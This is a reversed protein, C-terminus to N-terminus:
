QPQPNNESAWKRIPEFIQHFEPHDIDHKDKIIKILKIKNTEERISPLITLICEYLHPLLIMQKRPDLLAKLLIFRITELKFKESPLTPLTEKIWEYIPLFLAILEPNLPFPKNLIIPILEYLDKPEKEIISITNKIWEFMGKLLTKQSPNSSIPNELFTKIINLKFKKDQLNPLSNIIWKQLDENLTQENLLKMIISFRQIETLNQFEKLDPHFVELIKNIRWFQYNSFLDDAPIKIFIKRIFNIKFNIFNPNIFNIRNIYNIYEKINNSNQMTIIIFKSIDNSPQLYFFPNFLSLFIINKILTLNTQFIGILPTFINSPNVQPFNMEFHGPMFTWTITFPQQIEPKTIEITITNKNGDHAIDPNTLSLTLNLGNETIIKSLDDYSNINPILWKIVKLMNSAGSSIDGKPNYNVGPINELIIAWDNHANQTHINIPTYRTFFNIVAEKINIKHLIEPNFEKKNPDFLLAIFFNLLSTEGCDPFTKQPAPPNIITTDGSMEVRTPIVNEFLNFGLYAFALKNLNHTIINPNEEKLNKYNEYTFEKPKTTGTLYFKNQLANTFADKSIPNMRSLQETIERNFLVEKNNLTSYIGWLLDIFHQISNAKKWHFALLINITNNPMYFPEELSNTLFKIFNDKSKEFAKNNIIAGKKIKKSELQSIASADGKIEYFKKIESKIFDIKSTILENIFQILKTELNPENNQILGIIKGIAEPSFYFAIKLPLHTADFTIGDHHLFFLEHLLNITASNEGGFDYLNKIYPSHWFVAGWTPDFKNGDFPEQQTETPITTAAATAPGSTPASAPNITIMDPRFLGDFVKIQTIPIEPSLNTILIILTLFLHTISKM